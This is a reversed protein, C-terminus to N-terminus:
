PYIREDLLEYHVSREDWRNLIKQAEEPVYCATYDEGQFAIVDDLSAFTMITVFEVEDEHDFRLLEIKNYNKIKKAEISPFVFDNLLKEYASANKPETWGHWLRKIM